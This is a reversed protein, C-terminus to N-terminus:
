PPATGEVMPPDRDRITGIAIGVAEVDQADVAIAKRGPKASGLLGLAPLHADNKDTRVMNRGLVFELHALKEPSWDALISEAHGLHDDVDEVAARPGRDFVPDAFEERHRHSPFGPRIRKDPLYKGSVLRRPLRPGLNLRARVNPRRRKGDIKFGTRMADHHTNNVLIAAFVAIPKAHFHSARRRQTSSGPM